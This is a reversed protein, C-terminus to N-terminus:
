ECCSSVVPIDVGQSGLCETSDQFASESPLTSRQYPRSAAPISSAAQKSIRVLATRVHKNLPSRAAAAACASSQGCNRPGSPWPCELARLRGTGTCHDLVLFTAQFVGMEPSPQDDGTSLAPRM